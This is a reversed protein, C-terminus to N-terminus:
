LYLTVDKNDWQSKKGNKNVHEMGRPPTNECQVRKKGDTKFVPIKSVAYDSKRPKDSVKLKQTPKRQDSQVTNRSKLPSRELVDKLQVIRPCVVIDQDEYILNTLKKDLEKVNATINILPPTVPASKSQLDCKPEVKTTRPTLPASKIEVPVKTVINEINKVGDTKDDGKTVVCEEESSRDADKSECLLLDVVENLECNDIKEFAQELEDSAIDCEVTEKTDTEITNEPLTNIADPVVENQPLSEPTEIAKTECISEAKSTEKIRCKERLVADIDTETFDINTELLGVFSKRKYSDSRQKIPSSELLKPIIRNDKKSSPTTCIESQIVKDLNKNHIVQILNDNSANIVIPTRVFENTPSRPDIGLVKTRAVIPSSFVEESDESTNLLLNNKSSNLVIPTRFFDTTPSRPDIGLQIMQDKM